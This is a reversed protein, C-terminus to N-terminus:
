VTGNNKNNIKMVHSLHHQKYNSVFTEFKLTLFINIYLAIGFRAPLNQPHAGLVM